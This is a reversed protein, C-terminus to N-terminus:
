DLQQLNNRYEQIRFDQNKEAMMVAKEFFDRAKSKENKVKAVLGLGNIPLANEPERANINFCSLLEMLIVKSFDFCDM